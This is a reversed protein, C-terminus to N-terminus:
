EWPPTVVQISAQLKNLLEAEIYDRNQQTDPSDIWGLVDSQTLTPLDIFSTPDPGGVQATGSVSVTLGELSGSFVWDVAAVVNTLGEFSPWVRLAVVSTSFSAAM